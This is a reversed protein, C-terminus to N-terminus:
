LCEKIFECSVLTGDNMGLEVGKLMSDVSNADIHQGVAYSIMLALEKTHHVVAKTCYTRMRGDSEDIVAIADDEILLSHLWPSVEVINLVSRM